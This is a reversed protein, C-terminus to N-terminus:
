QKTFFQLPVPEASVFLIAEVIGFLDDSDGMEFLEENGAEDDLSDKRDSELEIDENIIDDNM